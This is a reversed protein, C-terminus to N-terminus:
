HIGFIVVLACADGDNFVWVLLHILLVLHYLLDTDIITQVLEASQIVRIINRLVVIRGLVLHQRKSVVFTDSLTFDNFFLGFESHHYEVLMFSGLLWVLRAAYEELFCRQCLDICTWPIDFKAEHWLLLQRVIVVIEKTLSLLSYTIFM